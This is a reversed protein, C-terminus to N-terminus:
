GSHKQLYQITTQLIQISDKAFGILRNCNFCLLERVKGTQHNHDVALASIRGKYQRIEPKGCIACLNRQKIILVDREALSIGFKRKLHCNLICDKQKEYHKHRYVKTKEKRAKQAEELTKYKRM